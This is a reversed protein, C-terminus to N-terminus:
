QGGPTRQVRPRARDQQGPNIFDSVRLGEGASRRAATLTPARVAPRDGVFRAHARARDLASASPSYRKLFVQAAPERVLLERLQEAVTPSALTTRFAVALRLLQDVEEAAHPTTLAESLTKALRPLQDSRLEFREHQAGVLASLVANEM